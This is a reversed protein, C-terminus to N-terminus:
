KVCGCGWGVGVQMVLCQGMDSGLGFTPSAISKPLSSACPRSCTYKVVCTAVYTCVYTHVYAAVYMRQSTCICYLIALICNMRVFVYMLSVHLM